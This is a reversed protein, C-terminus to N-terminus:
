QTIGANSWTLADGWERVIRDVVTARNQDIALLANPQAPTAFTAPQANPKSPAPPAAQAPLIQAGLMGIALFAYRKLCRLSIRNMVSEECARHIPRARAAHM